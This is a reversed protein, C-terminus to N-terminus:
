ARPGAAAVGPPVPASPACRASRRRSRTILLGSGGLMAVGALLFTVTGVLDDPVWRAVAQPVFVVAALSAWGITAGDRQWVAGAVLLMGALVGLVLGADPADLVVAQAASLATLSGLAQATRRPGVFGSAGAGAWALGACWLAVARVEESGGAMGVLGFLGAIGGLYATAAFGGNGTRHWAAASAGMATLGAAALATDAGLGALGGVVLYSTVTGSTGALLWLTTSLRRAVPEDSGVLGALGALAATALGLLLARSGDGLRSWWEAALYLSTLTTLIGGAYGLAEAAPSIPSSRPVPHHGPARPVPPTPWGTGGPTWPTWAGTPPSAPPRGASPAPPGWSPPGGAYSTTPPAPTATTDM